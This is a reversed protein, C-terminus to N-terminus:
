AASIDAIAEEIERAADEVDEAMKAEERPNEPENGSLPNKRKLTARAMSVIARLWGIIEEKNADVGGRTEKAKLALKKAAEKLEDDRKQKESDNQEEQEEQKEQEEAEKQAKEAEAAAKEPNAEAAGEAGAEDSSEEADTAEEVGAAVEANAAGETNEAGEAKEGKAEEGGAINLTPAADGGGSGGSESLAKYAAALDKAVIAAEKAIHVAAHKDGMIFAARMREVLIKLREKLEAIRQAAAQKKSAKRTEEFQKAQRRVEDIKEQAKRRKEAEVAKDELMKKAENSFTITLAEAIKAKTVPAPASLSSSVPASVASTKSSEKKSSLAAHVQQSIKISLSVKSSM